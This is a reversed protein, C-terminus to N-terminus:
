DASGQEEEKILLIMSFILLIGSVVIAADAINFTPWRQFGLLGYFKFDIFDVVGLSRFVRDILNGLGGGLIGAVAWRQMSTIESSRFYYILAAGLLLLPIGIFLVTRVEDPLSQGLSFAVAKNRTHIIRFFGNLISFGTSRLPINSVVMFKTLQDAIIILVSVLLPVIKGRFKKDSM